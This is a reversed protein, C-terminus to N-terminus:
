DTPRQRRVAPPQGTERGVAAQIAAALVMALPAAGQLLIRDWTVGALFVPRPHVAYAIWALAPPAAAAALLRRNRPHRLARHGVLLVCPVMWWFAAWHGSRLMRDLLLPGLVGARSVVAPWLHAARLLAPYAEDFRNVIGARWSNLLALALAVPLGAAAFRWVGEAVGARGAAGGRIVRAPPRPATASPRSPPAPARGAAGVEATAGGGPAPRQLARWGFILALVALPAGENKALAAGALLLGAALGGDGRPRAALLLALAAGYFAALPLDSYTTAAGGGGLLLYPVLGVAAAALAAATRGAGRRAGDYIVLLLAPLCAAYLARMRPADPDAGAAELVAAQAVPLLLPYQPHTVYWRPERLAAADVSAATRVYRAQAGWTMRGDWDNVPDSVAEAFVAACVVAAVVAAAAAVLGAARGLLHRRAPRGGGAPVAIAAVPLPARRRARRERVRRTIAAALGALAPAIAVAYIAPPRIPVGCTHSLAYLAGAVGALGLLYGYAARRALPKERLSPLLETLGFGPVAFLAVAELGGAIEAPM